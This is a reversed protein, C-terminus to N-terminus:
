YKLLKYKGDPKKDVIFDIKYYNKERNFCEKLFVDKQIETNLKWKQFNIELELLQDPPSSLNKEKAIQFVDCIRELHQDSDYLARELSGIYIYRGTAGTIFQNLDRTTAAIVDDKETSTRIKEFIEAKSTDPVLFAINKNIWKVQSFIGMLIILALIFPTIIRFNKINKVVSAFTLFLALTAVPAIVRSIWHDADISRELLVQHVDMLLGASVAFALITKSISSKSVFFFLAAFFMYRLQRPFLIEKPYSARMFFDTEKLMQQYGSFNLFWPTTILIFVLFSLAIEKKKVNKILFPALIILALIITSSIFFSTYLSLGAIIGLFILNKGKNKELSDIIFLISIFLYILSIQPHPTRTIFLPDQSTGTWFYGGRYIFPILTSFFPLLVVAGAASLSFMKEYYKRLALYIILFLTVPFIVDSAIFAFKVDGLVLTLIVIPLISIFESLFPSPSNRHEWIYADGVFHGKLVQQAQAAYAYLEDRQYQNKEYLNFPTYQRGYNLYGYVHPLSTTFAIIAAILFVLYKSILKGM